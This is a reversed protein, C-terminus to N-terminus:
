FTVNADKSCKSSSIDCIRKYETNASDILIEAFDCLTLSSVVCPALGKRFRKILANCEQRRQLYYGPITHKM